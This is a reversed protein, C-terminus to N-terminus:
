KFSLSEPTHSCGPSAAPTRMGGLQEFTLWGAGLRHTMMGILGPSESDASEQPCQRTRSAEPESPFSSVESSPRSSALGQASPGVCTIGHPESLEAQQHSWSERASQGKALNVWHSVTLWCCQLGPRASGTTVDETVKLSDEPIVIVLGLLRPPEPFWTSHKKYHLKVDSKTQCFSEEIKFFLKLNGVKVQQTWARRTSLVM